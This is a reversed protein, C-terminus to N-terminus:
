PVDHSVKVTHSSRCQSLVTKLLKDNRDTLIRGHMAKLILGSCSEGDGTVGPDVRRVSPSVVRILFSDLNPDHLELCSHQFETVSIHVVGDIPALRLMASAGQKGHRQDWLM